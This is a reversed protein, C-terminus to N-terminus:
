LIDNQRNTRNRGNQKEEIYNPNVVVFLNSYVVGVTDGKKVGSMKIFERPLTVVLSNGARIVKRLKAKAKMIFFGLWM